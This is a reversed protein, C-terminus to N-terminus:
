SRLRDPLAFVVEGRLNIDLIAGDAEAVHRETSALGFPGVVRFGAAQGVKACDDAQFYEDEVVLIRTM